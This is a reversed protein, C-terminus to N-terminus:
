RAGHLAEGLAEVVQARTEAATGSTDLVWTAAHRLRDVLGAQAAMRQDADAAPTGRAILRARQVAPDCTVVWVEDCTAALGGEVLKIAEIAVAPAGAAEAAEVAEVIRPRVAPHVIQELDRLAVPDSFVLRGLAARDVSGDVAAVAPGFRRLVLDHAPHGPATVSRAIGDADVIHVGLEQLWRVVPSKGCGIPGTIGIRVTRLGTRM